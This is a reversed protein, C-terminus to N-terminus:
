ITEVTINLCFLHCHLLTFLIMKHFKFYQFQKIIHCATLKDTRESEFETKVSFNNLYKGEYVRTDWSVLKELYSDDRPSNKAKLQSNFNTKCVVKLRRM